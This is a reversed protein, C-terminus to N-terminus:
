DPIRDFGRRAAEVFAVIKAVDKRGDTEVGSSVDVGVPGVTRIAEEVNEANLGGALVIPWRRALESAMGWDARIGQGGAQTPHYGDILFAIPPCGANAQAAITADVGALSTDPAPHLASVLPFKVHAGLAADENGHLQLLDLGAVDAVGNMEAATANVFVGIVLFPTDRAVERAAEICAHATAKNVQRKSPAFVFGLLDAGAAAAARAHV